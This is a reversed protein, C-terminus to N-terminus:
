FDSLYQISDSASQRLQVLQEDVPVSEPERVCRSETCLQNISESTQELFFNSQEENQNISATSLTQHIELLL